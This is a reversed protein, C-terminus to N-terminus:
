DHRVWKTEDVFWFLTDLEALEKKLKRAQDRLSRETESAKVISAYDAAPPIQGLLPELQSLRDAEERLSQVLKQASVIKDILALAEQRLQALQMDQERRTQRLQRSIQGRTDLRWFFNANVRLKGADWFSDETGNKQYIAPGTIFLTLDPWYQLQVGKVRAWAAVFEIAALKMQLQAVRNTDDLPLPNQSYDLKPLGQNVLVWRWDRNGFLEAARDQLADRDHVVGIGRNDLNRLMIQGALPDIRAIVQALKTDRDLDADAVAADEFAYFLKYLEIIQERWALQYAAQAHLLTLRSAFLRTGMTVFGPLNFFSDINFTVDDLSTMPISDLDKSWGSRFNVNPILDKFVQRINEQGNTIDTRARLLKLNGSELLNVAEVWNVRHEPLTAHRAVNTRWQGQLEHYNKAVRKKASYCGTLALVALLLLSSWLVRSATIRARGRGEDEHETVLAGISSSSSKTM